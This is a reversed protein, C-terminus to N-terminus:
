ENTLKIYYEPNVPNGKFWLEFHLHPGSTLEGSNGVVGLIDGTQVFSGIKKLLVSNHKYISILGGEHQVAITYGTEQTWNSLIVTGKAISKVPENDKTVIDVGFHNTHVDFKQAIHYGIVPPLLFLDDYQSVSQVEPSATLDENEFEKRLDSEVKSMETIDLNINSSKKPIISDIKNIGIIDPLLSDGGSIILNLRDIYISDLRSYYVLTDLQQALAVIKRNQKHAIYEPDYWRKMLTKGFFFSILFVVLFVTFFVMSAKAYNFEVTVRDEFNEENRVILQYKKTLWNYFTENKKKKM